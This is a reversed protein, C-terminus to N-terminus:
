THDSRKMPQYETWSGSVGPRHRADLQEQERAAIAGDHDRLATRADIGIADPDAGMRTLLRSTTGQNASTLGLILHMTTVYQSDISAAEDLALQLTRKASAAIEVADPTDRAPHAGPTRVLESRAQDVTVGHSKLLEFAAGDRAQLLGLVLHEEGISSHGFERAAELAVAVVLRASETFRIYERTTTANPHCDASRPRALSGRNKVQV